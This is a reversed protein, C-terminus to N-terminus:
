RILKNGVACDLCKKNVCYQTNLELLAQSDLGNRNSIGKDQWYRTYRNHEPPLAYLWQIAKDKLRQDNQQWGQLFLMPIVANLFIHACMQTGIFTAHRPAQEDFVYHDNWYVSAKIKCFAMAERLASTERFLAPLYPHRCQLMALQSLRITPFSAPRMRLFSPMMTTRELRHKHKLHQYEKQLQQPYVDTFSRELLNAQGMFLAELLDPRDNYRLLLTLDLSSCVWQFLTANIRNGFAAALQQWWLSEWHISRGSCQALLSRTKRELREFALREKWAFWSLENMAPLYPDCAVLQMHNVMEDYRQLLVYPVLPELVLTPIVRGNGDVVPRDNEWVVHLIVNAYHLDHTHGHRFWDSSQVHLEINGVWVAEEIRVQGCLFDPGQDHNWTGRHIVQLAHGETTFLEQQKYLQFQWIYQLLRENMIINM